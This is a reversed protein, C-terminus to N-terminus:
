TVCIPPPPPTDSKRPFLTVFTYHEINNANRPPPDLKGFFLTVYCKFPGKASVSRPSVDHCVCLSMYLIIATTTIIILLISVDKYFLDSNNEVDYALLNTHTGVTLIDHDSNPRLQGTALSSVVQNINLLNIDNDQAAMIRGGQQQRSHPNHIFIQFLSAHWLCVRFICPSLNYLM